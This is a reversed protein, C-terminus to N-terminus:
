RGSGFDRVEGPSLLVVRSEYQPLKLFPFVQHPKFVAETVTYRIKFRSELKLFLWGVWKKKTMTLFLHDFWTAPCKHVIVVDPLARGLIYSELRFILEDFNHEIFTFTTNDSNLLVSKSIAKDFSCRLRKLEVSEFFLPQIITPMGSTYHFRKWAVM